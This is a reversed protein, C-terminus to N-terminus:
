ANQYKNRSIFQNINSVIYSLLFSFILVLIPMLYLAYINSYLNSYDYLYELSHWVIPHLIYIYLSYDKGIRQLLGKHKNPNNIAYIFLASVQPITVVNVGFDRGLLYREILCLFTSIAIVALITSNKFDLKSQNKHIWHGLM